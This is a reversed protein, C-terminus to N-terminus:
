IMWFVPLINELSYSGWHFWIKNKGLFGPNKKEKREVIYFNKFALM